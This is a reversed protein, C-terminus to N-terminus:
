KVKFHPLKDNNRTIYAREAIPIVDFLYRPSQTKFVKYFGCGIDDESKLPNLVYNHYLKEPYVGRIAGTKALASNYQISELIQHFTVNAQDYKCFSKTQNCYVAEINLLDKLILNNVQKTKM